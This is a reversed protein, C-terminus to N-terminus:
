KKAQGARRAQAEAGVPAAEKHPEAGKGQGLIYHAINRNQQGLTTSFESSGDGRAVFYLYNNTEPHLAAELSARGAMAIPTPPLGPRTYTNWPTDHQLDRKHLHGDYSSGLGYIVSPDTQLPMDKRLRNVFVGAVRAREDPKAVEKEILSALILAEYPTAIPLGPARQKWAQELVDQGTAYARRLLDLDTSGADYVYTNPFFLGEPDKMGIGLRAMIQADSLGALTHKLDPANNLAALMQKFTWGEIFTIQRESREGLAMRELLTWPSDGQIAEYGGSKLMKDRETVRALLIFGPAWIPIGADHLARAISRPTSGPDVIFDVKAAPMQVPQRAWLVFGGVTGAALALILIPFLLVLVSFRIKMAVACNLPYAQMGSEARGGRRAGRAHGAAAVCCPIMPQMSRLVPGGPGYRAQVSKWTRM